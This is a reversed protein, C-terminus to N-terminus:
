QTDLYLKLAVPQHSSFQQQWVCPLLYAVIHPSPLPCIFDLKNSLGAIPVRLLFDSTVHWAIDVLLLLLSLKYHQHHLLLAKTITYYNHHM